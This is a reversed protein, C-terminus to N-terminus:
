LFTKIFGTIAVRCIPCKDIRSTCSACTLCHGCATLTIIRQNTLCIICATDDSSAKEDEYQDITLPQITPPQPDQQSGFIDNMLRNSWRNLEPNQSTFEDLIPEVMNRAHAVAAPGSRAEITQLMSSILPGFSAPLIPDDM